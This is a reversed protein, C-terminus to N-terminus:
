PKEAYVHVFRYLLNFRLPMIKALLKDIIFAAKMLLNYPNKFLRVSIVGAPVYFLQSFTFRTKFHKKLLSIEHNELPKEDITRAQPTRKRVIRGIPNSGMPEIFFCFGDKKLVRKIEQVAKDFDLHHLIGAGFVVDFSEDEFELKNADMVMFNFNPLQ